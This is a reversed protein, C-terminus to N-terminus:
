AILILRASPTNSANKTQSYFIVQMEDRELLVRFIYTGVCRGDICKWSVSVCLRSCVHVCQAEDLARGYGPITRGLM